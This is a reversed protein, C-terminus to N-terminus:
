ENICTETDAVEPRSRRISTATGASRIVVATSCRRLSIERVARSFPKRGPLAGSGTTRLCNPSCTRASTTPSRIRLERASARLRSFSVGAAPGRMSGIAIVGPESRLYAAVKSTSGSIWILGGAVMATSRGLAVTSSPSISAISSLM